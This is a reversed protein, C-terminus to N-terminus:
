SYGNGKPTSHPDVPPCIGLAEDDQQARIGDADGAVGDIPNFYPQFDYYLWSAWLSRARRTCVWGDSSLWTGHQKCAGLAKVVAPNQPHGSSCVACGMNLM